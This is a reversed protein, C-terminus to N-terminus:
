KCNFFLSELAPLALKAVVRISTRNEASLGALLVQGARRAFLTRALPRTDMAKEVSHTARGGHGPLVV